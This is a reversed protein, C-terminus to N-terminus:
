EKNWVKLTIEEGPDLLRVQLERGPDGWYRPDGNGNLVMLEFTSTKCTRMVTDGNSTHYEDMDVIGVQLPKMDKALVIRSTDREKEMKLM